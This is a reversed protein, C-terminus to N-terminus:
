GEFLDRKRLWEVTLGIAEDMQEPQNQYYHTADKVVRHEKDASATADFIMRSHPQPVADDASNEIALLPVSIKAANAPGDARSEDYSWQSLWSRLTSFRGLGVPGSNVTEPDGLYCWNPKRDNPDILPDLFRPDAMTRHVIFGRELEKGGRAKLDELTERVWATIKRNRAIQAARYREVFGADFPPGNEPNYMDLEPDRDDPDLEDRVSPDIWETMTRARSLHAAQFTIADAPILGAGAVDVPDGAPTDVVTPNEAQAQYFLSLAGGGSWGGLVIKEYGWEEKATRIWAGMDLLVKEFILASDNKPYRSGACLVHVGYTPLARTVPLLQLTSAPHMFITLTKSDRGRPTYHVGELNVNGVSGAFGYTETFKSVENFQVHRWIADTEFSSEAM